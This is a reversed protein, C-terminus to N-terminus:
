NGSKGSNQPQTSLANDYLIFHTMTIYVSLANICTRLIWEYESHALSEAMECILNLIEKKKIFKEYNKNLRRKKM